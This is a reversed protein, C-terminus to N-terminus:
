YIYIKKCLYFYINSFISVQMENKLSSIPNTKEVPTPLGPIDDPTKGGHISLSETDYLGIQSNVPRLQPLTM